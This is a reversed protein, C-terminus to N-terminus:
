IFRDTCTTESVKHGNRKRWRIGSQRVCEKCTRKGTKELYINNGARPHGYKCVTLRSREMNVKHTVAELHWPKVCARNRCKHDIELGGPIKGFFLEYAYIHAYANGSRKGNNPFIGYGLRHKEGQWLWCDLSLDIRDWFRWNTPYQKGLLKM